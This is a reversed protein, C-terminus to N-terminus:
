KINCSFECTISGASANGDLVVKYDKITNNQMTVTITGSSFTLDSIDMSKEAAKQFYNIIAGYLGYAQDNTITFKVTHLDSSTPVGTAIIEEALPQVIGAGLNAVNFPLFITKESNNLSAWTDIEGYPSAYTYSYENGPMKLTANGTYVGNAKTIDGNITIAGGFLGNKKFSIDSSVTYDELIVTNEYAENYNEQAQIIEEETPTYEDGFVGGMFLSVGVILLIIGLVIPGGEGESGVLAGIGGGVFLVGLIILFVM